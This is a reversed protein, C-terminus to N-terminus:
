GKEMGEEGEKEEQTTKHSKNEKQRNRKRLVQYFNNCSPKWTFLCIRLVSRTAGLETRQKLCGCEKVMYVKWVLCDVRQYRKTGM